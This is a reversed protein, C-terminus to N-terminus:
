LNRLFFKQTESFESIIFDHIQGEPEMINKEPLLKVQEWILHKKKRM